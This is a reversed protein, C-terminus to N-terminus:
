TRLQSLNGINEPITGTVLNGAIELVTLRTLVSIELPVTGRFQSDLKLFGLATLRGIETPITGALSTREVHIYEIQQWELAIDFFSGNISNNNVDFTKLNSMKDFNRPLTGTLLNQSLNLHQLKSLTGIITGITSSFENAGLALTDPVNQYQL